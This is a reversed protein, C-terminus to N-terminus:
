VKPILQSKARIKYHKAIDRTHLICLQDYSARYRLYAIKIHKPFM